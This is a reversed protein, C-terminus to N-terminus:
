FFTFRTKEQYLKGAILIPSPFDPFHVADPYYQTELCLGAFPRYHEGRKGVLTGDLYNGTYVQVGPLSSEVRMALQQDSSLLEAVKGFSGFPKSLVYNHNLGSGKKMQEHSDFIREGIRAGDRLDFPTGAVDLIKGTSSCVDDIETFRDAFVTLWEGTIDGEHHEELNFYSHHTLNVVTSQDGSALYDITLARFSISYTIQVDLTGPYGAEGDPSIRHLTVFDDGALQVEFPVNWFGQSGGHLHNSGENAELHYSKEDLIFSAGGIRNACRGIVAGIYYEQNVYRNWDSFGLVVDRYSGKRDKVQLRQIIGGFSLIEASIEKNELLIKEVPSGAVAGIVERKM